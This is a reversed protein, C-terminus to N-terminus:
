GGWLCPVEERFHMKAFPVQDCKDSHIMIVYKHRPYRITTMRAFIQLSKKSVSSYRCYRERRKIFPIHGYHRMACKTAVILHIRCPSAEEPRQVRVTSWISMSKAAFWFCPLECDPLTAQFLNPSVRLKHTFPSQPLWRGPYFWIHFYMSFFVCGLGGPVKWWVMWKVPVWAAGPFLLDM